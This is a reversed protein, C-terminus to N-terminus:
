PTTTTQTDNQQTPEPKNLITVPFSHEYGSGYKITIRKNSCAKFAKFRAKYLGNADKGEDIVIFAEEDSSIWELSDDVDDGSTQALLVLENIGDLYWTIGNNGVYLNNEGGRESWVKISVAPSVTAVPTVTPSETPYSNSDNPAESEVPHFTSEPSPAITASLTPEPELSPSVIAVNSRPKNGFDFVGFPLMIVTVCLFVGAVIALINLYVPMSFPVTGCTPCVKYKEEYSTGCSKCLIQM